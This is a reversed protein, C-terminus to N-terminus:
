SGRSGMIVVFCILIMPHSNVEDDTRLCQIVCGSENEVLVKFKKFLELATSKEKMFYIWTKRTLDDTFTIFYKNGGNSTPNIPGCIDSHVL